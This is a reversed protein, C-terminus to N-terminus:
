LRKNIFRQCPLAVSSHKFYCSNFVDLVNIADVIHTIRKIM